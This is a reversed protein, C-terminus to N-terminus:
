GGGRFESISSGRSGDDEPPPSKLTITATLIVLLVLVGWFVQHVARTLSAAAPHELPHSWLLLVLGGMIGPGLTNGLNRGLNYLGTAAGLEHRPVQSQVSNLTAMIVMGVGLGLLAGGLVVRPWQGSAGASENLLVGASMEVLGTRVATSLGIRAVLPATLLSGAAWGVPLPLIALGVALPGFAWATHLWLPLVIVAAYLTGSAALALISPATIRSDRLWALPILPHSARREARWWGLALGLAAGVLLWGLGSQPDQQFVTLASIGATLWGALWLAGAWDLPPRDRPPAAPPLPGLTALALAGLLVNILFPGRWSLWQAVVGGLTPGLLGALGWMASLRGQMRIRDLGQYHQGMLILGLTLIGGAGAGQVIRTVIFWGMASASASGISGLLFLGISWRYLTEPPHQGSLSGVLPTTVTAAIMFGALLWPYWAMGGLHQAITPGITGVVTSDWAALFTALLVSPALRPSTTM